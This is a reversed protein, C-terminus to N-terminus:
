DKDLGLVQGNGHIKDRDRGETNDADEIIAKQQERQQDKRPGPGPLDRSSRAPMIPDEVPSVGQATNRKEPPCVVCAQRRLM